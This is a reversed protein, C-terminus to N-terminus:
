SVIKKIYVRVKLSKTQGGKFFGQHPPVDKYDRGVATKIHCKGTIVNNTPDFGVWGLSHFYCECWAHSQNVLSRFASEKEDYLYGSVYRCPIGWKRSIAIMVHTYDQCVGKKLTLIEKIFSHPNTTNPSYKFIHFLQSNLTQLSKLPDDQKKINEEKLFAELEKCSRTFYSERLWDWMELQKVGVEQKKSPDVPKLRETKASFFKPAEVSVKFSSHIKLSKHEMLINFFHKNNGYLDKYSFLKAEPETRLSYDKIKQAATEIPQITLIFINERILDSYSLETFHDVQYFGKEKNNM